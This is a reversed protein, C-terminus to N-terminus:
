NLFEGGWLVDNVLYHYPIIQEAEDINKLKDYVSSAVWGNHDKAKLPESNFLLEGSSIDINFDIM